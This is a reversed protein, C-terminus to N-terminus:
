SERDAVQLRGETVAHEISERLRACAIRSAGGAFEACSSPDSTWQVSTHKYSNKRVLVSTGCADCRVPTMGSQLYNEKDVETQARVVKAAEGTVDPAKAWTAM